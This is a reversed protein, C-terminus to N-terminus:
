VSFSTVRTISYDKEHHPKQFLPLLAIEVLFFRPSSHMVEGVM